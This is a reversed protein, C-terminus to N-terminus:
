LVFFSMEFKPRGKFSMNFFPRRLVLSHQIANYQLHWKRCTAVKEESSVELDNSCEHCCCPAIRQVDVRDRERERESLLLTRRKERQIAASHLFVKRPSLNQM